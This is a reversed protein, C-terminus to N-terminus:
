SSCRSIILWMMVLMSQDVVDHRADVSSRRSILMNKERKCAHVFAGVILTQMQQTSKQVTMFECGSLGFVFGYVLLSAAEFL